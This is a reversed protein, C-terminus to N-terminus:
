FVPVEIYQNNEDLTPNDSLYQKLKLAYSRQTSVDLDSMDFIGTVQIFLEYKKNSYEGLYYSDIDSNWWSPKTLTNSFWIVATSQEIKGIKLDATSEIRLLLRVKKTKLDDTKNLRVYLTDVYSNAQFVQTEPLSYHQGSATTYETDAVVKYNLNQSSAVGVLELVLPFDIYDQGPYFMFSVNTSDSNEKAFQVFFDGSYTTLKEEECGTISIFAFAVVILLSISQKM